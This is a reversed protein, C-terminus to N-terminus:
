GVGDGGLTDLLRQRAEHLAQDLRTRGSEEEAKQIREVEQQLQRAIAIERCHLTLWGALDLDTGNASNTSNVEVQLGAVTAASLRLKIDPM